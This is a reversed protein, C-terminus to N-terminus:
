GFLGGVGERERAFGRELANRDHMRCDGREFAAGATTQPPRWLRLLNNMRLSMRPFCQPALSGVNAPARANQLGRRAIQLAAELDEATSGREQHRGLRDEGPVGRAKAVDRGAQRPSDAPREPFRMWPVVSRRSAASTRNPDASSPTSTRRRPRKRDHRFPTASM